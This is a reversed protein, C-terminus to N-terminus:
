GKSLKCVHTNVSNRWSNLAADCQKNGSSNLESFFLRRLINLSLFRATMVGSFNEDCVAMGKDLDQSLLSRVFHVDFVM